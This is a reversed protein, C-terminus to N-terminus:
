QTATRSLLWDVLRTDSIVDNTAMEYSYGQLVQKLNLDGAAPLTLLPVVLLRRQSGASQEILRRTRKQEDDTQVSNIVLISSFQRLRNLQQAASNLNASWPTGDNDAGYGVLVIVEDSPSRSIERARSIIVDGFLPDDAPSSALRLPVPYGTGLQPSIVTPLFFPVATVDTAGRKVLREVAAEMTARTPTGLSLETPKRANAKATLQTVEANWEANGSPALILIGQGAMAVTPASATFLVIAGAIVTRM